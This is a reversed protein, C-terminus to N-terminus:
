RMMLIACVAIGATMAMWAAAILRERRRRRKDAWRRVRERYFRRNQAHAQAAMALREAALADIEEETLSRDHELRWLLEDM